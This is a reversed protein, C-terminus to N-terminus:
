TKSKSQLLDLLKSISEDRTDLTQKQTEIRIEMEEMTRQLLENERSLRDVEEQLIRTDVAYGSAQLNLDKAQSGSMDDHLLQNLDQQARVEDQLAQVELQLSQLFSLM